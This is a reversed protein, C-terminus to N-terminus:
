DCSVRDLEIHCRLCMRQNKSALARCRGSGRWGPGHPSVGLRAPEASHCEICFDERHCGTCTKLNKQADIGHNWGARHFRGVVGTRDFGSEGRVGVGAREHCGVCFRQSKHCAGCDPTGRRADVAHLTVYDGPHFDMPKVSGAHCDACFRKEHCSACSQADARAIQDHNTRFDLDHVAGTAGGVPVLAGDPLATRVRGGQTALHCTTCADAAREGDHCTMCSDMSPLHDRTALTANTVDHCAVCATTTHAAHSFKLHPTPIAIRAVSAGVTYGPHCAVCATPPTGAAADAGATGEPRTRDIAHCARCADEGPTLRDVVSRSTTAAAHCDICAAGVKGVHLAHSFVLPIRQAPYVVTSPAAVAVGLVSLVASLVIAVLARSRSWRRM